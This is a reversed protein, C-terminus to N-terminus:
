LREWGVEVYVVDVVAFHRGQASCYVSAGLWGGFSWARKMRTERQAHIGKQKLVLSGM